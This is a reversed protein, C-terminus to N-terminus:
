FNTIRDILGRERARLDCRGFITLATLTLASTMVVLVGLLVMDTIGDFTSFQLAHERIMSRRMLELWYTVPLAYGIPRLYAPLAELPFIAGTFLFLAGAVADGLAWSQTTIILVVGALLLGMMALMIVGITLGIILLPWNIARPIAPLHLFVIGCAITVLVSLSVTLFKAAGRGVLYMPITVPAVYISKLTRYRERDELVAQSMGTMVATVYMYFANGLFMYSFTPSRFNGHTILGYMVVLIGASTLPKVISYVAFLFPDAWSAEIQWGLWAATRLTRWRM